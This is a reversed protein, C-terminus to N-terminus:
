RKLSKNIKLYQDFVMQSSIINMSNEDRVCNRSSVPMNISYDHPYDLPGAKEKKILCHYLGIIPINSCCALQTIGTDVGIYIDCSYLIAATKRLNQNCFVFVSDPYKKKLIEAYESESPSGVIIFKTKPSKKLIRTILESFREIPWDRFSKQPHSKIKLCVLESNNIKLAHLPNRAELLEEQSVAFDMRYGDHAIKNHCVLELNEIIIHPRDESSFREIYNIGNIYNKKNDPIFSYTKRSIRSSLKIFSFNETYAFCQDFKKFFTFFRIIKAMPTNLCIVNSVHSNLIFVDRLNKKCIVTIDSNPYNKAVARIAPTIAISDGIRKTVTFLIKTKKTNIVTSYIVPIFKLLCTM